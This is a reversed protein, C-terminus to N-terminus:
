ISARLGQGVPAPALQLREGVLEQYLREFADVVKEMAYRESVFARAARGMQERRVEDELLAVVTSVFADQADLPVLIGTSGDRLAEHMGGVATAVAPVGQAAAELIVGPIGEIRSPLVLLDAGAVLESVDSRRGLVHVRETLGREQIAAEVAGRLPGDGFLLLHAADRERTLRTFAELLWLHNKEPSYSGIHVLIEVGAPLGALHRLRARALDKVLQEPVHVGIPITSIRAAPVAYTRRFDARTEDSVAVVHDVARVLWRGWARHGPYRLWYSALSINRYVLPWRGRQLRKALSSYKLTASGNAQVLDPRFRRIYSHVAHVGGPSLRGQPLNALDDAGAVEPQLPDEPPPYLGLLLVEHGRRALQDALQAAFVEAGRRQRRTILQLIRM